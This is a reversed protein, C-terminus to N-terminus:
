NSALTSTAAPAVPKYTISIFNAGKKPNAVMTVNYTNDEDSWITTGLRCFKRDFRWVVENMDKKDYTEVYSTCVGEFNFLFTYDGIVRVKTFCLAETGNATKFEQVNAYSVNEGFYTKIEEKTAGLPFQAFASVSLVSLAILLILRKM